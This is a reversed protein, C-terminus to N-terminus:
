SDAPSPSKRNYLWMGKKVEGDLLEGVTPIHFLERFHKLEDREDLIRALRPDTLEINHETALAKLREAPHPGEEAMNVQKRGSCRSGGNVASGSHGNNTSPAGNLQLM